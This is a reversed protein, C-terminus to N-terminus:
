LPWPSQICPTHGELCRAVFSYSFESPWPSSTSLLLTNHTPFGPAGLLLMTKCTVQPRTICLYPLSHPGKSPLFAWKVFALSLLTAKYIVTIHCFSPTIPGATFTIAPLGDPLSFLSTHKRPTCTNQQKTGRLSGGKVMHSVEPVLSM